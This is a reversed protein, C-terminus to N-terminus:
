ALQWGRATEEATPNTMSTGFRVGNYTNAPAGLVTVTNNLGMYLIDNRGSQAINNLLGDLAGSVTTGNIYLFALRTLNNISAIDGSIKTNQVSVAALKSYASLGSIDGVMDSAEVAFLSVLKNADVGNLLQSLSSIGKVPTNRLDIDTINQMNGWGEFTTVPASIQYTNDTYIHGLLTKDECTIRVTSNADPLRLGYEGTSSYSTVGSAIVQSYNGKQVIDIPKDSHITGSLVRIWGGHLTIRLEKIKLLDSNDVTGKLKTVLCNNAM